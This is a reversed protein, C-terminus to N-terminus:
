TQPLLSTAAHSVANHFILVEDSVLMQVKFYDEKRTEYTFGPFQFVHGIAFNYELICTWIM